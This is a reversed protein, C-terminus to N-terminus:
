SGGRRALGPRRGGTCARDAPHCTEDMGQGWPVDHFMMGRRGRKGAGQGARKGDSDDTTLAGDFRGGGCQITPLLAAVRDPQDVHVRVARLQLFPMRLIISGLDVLPSHPGQSVCVCVFVCVCM